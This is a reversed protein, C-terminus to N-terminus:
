VKINIMLRITVFGITYMVMLLVFVLIFIPDGAVDLYFEPNIAFLAVFAAVPLISLIWGTMRGESSLARVKLFLSARARVVNALNELIEALNGGTENQVSLSVVFMRIDELDWREAMAALSDSLEAGYAVEDAVLGYESGIPDPMEKTLLDIASAVPHGARLARIFVDLSVPFQEEMRKRRRQGSASIVLIPLLVAVCFALTLILLVTGQTMAFGSMSAAVGIVAVLLGFAVAMGFIVQSTQFQIGASRLARELATLWGAIPQPFASFDTGSNKRLVSVVEERTRGESIMRLRQNITNLRSRRAWAVNLMAQVIIFTAAFLALLIGIKIIADTM